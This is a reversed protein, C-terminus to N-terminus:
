EEPGPALSPHRFCRIKPEAMSQVLDWTGDDGDGVNLVIEDVLPLMSRLCAELPYGFRIVHRAISFGCIRM